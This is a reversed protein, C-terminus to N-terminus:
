IAREGCGALYYNYCFMLADKTNRCGHLNYLFEKADKGNSGELMTTCINEIEQKSKAANLKGMNNFIKNGISWKAESIFKM